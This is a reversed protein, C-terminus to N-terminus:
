RCKRRLESGVVLVAAAQELDAYRLWAVARRIGPQDRFDAWSTAMAAVPIGRAM